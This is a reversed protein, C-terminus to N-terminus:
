SARVFAAYVLSGTFVLLWWAALGGLLPLSGGATVLAQPAVGCVYAVLAVLAGAPLFLMTAVIAAMTM